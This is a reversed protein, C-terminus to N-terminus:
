FKQTSLQKEWLSKNIQIRLETEEKSLSYDRSHEIHYTILDDRTAIKIGAHEVRKVFNADEYALGKSYQEDFGGIKNYNVKSIASCFHFLVNRTAHQYWHYFKFTSDSFNGKDEVLHMASCSCVIYSNSFDVKDLEKFIDLTHPTEPNTLMIISGNSVEVGRNYRTSANYSVCPDVIFKIQLLDKFQNIIELLKQHMEETNFNKTDEVVIIEIDNRGRYLQAFSDFAFRIEPRNYYPM